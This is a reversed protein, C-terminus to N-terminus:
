PTAEPVPITKCNMPFPAGAIAFNKDPDPHGGRRGLGGRPTYRPFRRAPPACLPFIPTM